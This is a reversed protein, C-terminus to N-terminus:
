MKRLTLGLQWPIEQCEKTSVQSTKNASNKIIRLDEISYFLRAQHKEWRFTSM